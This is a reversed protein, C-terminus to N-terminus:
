GSSFLSRDVPCHRESLFATSQGFLCDVARFPCTLRYLTAIEERKHKEKPLVCILTESSSLALPQLGRDRGAVAIPKGPNHHGDMSGITPYM